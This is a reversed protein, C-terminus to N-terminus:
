ETDQKNRLATVNKIMTMFEGRYGLDDKNMANKALSSVMKLDGKGKYVSKSLDMGFLAVAASFRFNDSQQNVDSKVAEPVYRHVILKSVDEKPKKYRFKIGLLENEQMVLPDKAETTDTSPSLQQSSTSGTPIIEYLATVTHGAGLEGADKKDDDFDETNLVRNKYGILRYGKVLTPNFQLQLKVDKAITFLNARMEKSFVKQAEKESDVYFYNGNGSNSLKEMQDAGYNRMGFGCITLFIDDKAKEKILEVLPDGYIGVNFDGDTALIIRNNGDAIFNEKAIKYALEIGAGGNTSGGSSLSDLANIIKEKETAPTSPLVLGSADAYVIIAVKDQDSLEDLLVKLSKKLLPLKNEATMSGSVDLLFVLNSAKLNKTDLKKGQLGIHLLQHEENWPCKGLELNFSFPDEGTPDKYDYTFYNIFDEIRIASKDPLNKYTNIQSKAYTYSANDIDISFTSFAQQQTAYFPNEDTKAQVTPRIKLKRKTGSITVVESEFIPANLVGGRSRRKSRRGMSCSDLLLIIFLSFVVLLYIRKSM